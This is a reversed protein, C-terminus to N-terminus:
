RSVYWTEHDNMMIRKRGPSTYWRGYVRPPTKPTKVKNAIQEVPAQTAHTTAYTSIPHMSLTRSSAGATQSCPPQATCPSCGDLVCPLCIQRVSNVHQSAVECLVLILVSLEWVVFMQDGSRWIVVATCHEDFNGEALLNWSQCCERGARPIAVPM